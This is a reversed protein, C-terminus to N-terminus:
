NEISAREKRGSEEDEAHSIKLRPCKLPKIFHRKLCIREGDVKKSIELDNIDVHYGINRFM